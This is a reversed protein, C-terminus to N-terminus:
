HVRACESPSVAAQWQDFLHTRRVALTPPPGPITPSACTAHLAPGSADKHIDMKITQHWLRTLLSARLIDSADNPAYM